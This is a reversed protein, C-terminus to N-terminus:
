DVYDEIKTGETEFKFEIEKCEPFIKNFQYRVRNKILEDPCVCLLSGGSGAGAVKKGVVGMEDLKDCIYDIKKNSINDSLQKKLEWSENMLRGFDDFQKNILYELGEDVMDRMKILIDLKNPTNDRQKKLVTNANRPMNLDYLILRKELENIQDQYQNLNIVDVSNDKHFIIKNFGGCASAYNDQKGNAALMKFREFEYSKEALEKSSIASEKNIINKFLFLSNLLAGSSGLGSGTKTIDSWIKLNRIDIKEENIFRDILNNDNYKDSYELYIYKNISSSLVSGHGSSSYFEVLDGGGGFFSIRLPSRILIKM